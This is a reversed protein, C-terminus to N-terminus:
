VSSQLVQKILKWKNHTHALKQLMRDWMELAIFVLFQVAKVIVDVGARM